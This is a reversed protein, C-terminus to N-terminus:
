FPRLKISLSYEGQYSGLNSLSKKSFVDAIGTGSEVQIFPDYKLCFSKSLSM